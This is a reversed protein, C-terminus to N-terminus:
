TEEPPRDPVPPPPTFEAEQEQRAKLDSLREQFSAWLQLAATCYRYYRAGLPTPILQYDAGKIFCKQGLDSELKQLFQVMASPTLQLQEAARRFSGADALVIFYRLANLDNVNM